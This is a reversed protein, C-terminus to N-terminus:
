KVVRLVPRAHTVIVRANLITSYVQAQLHVVQQRDEDSLRKHGYGDITGLTADAFVKAMGAIHSKWEEPSSKVEKEAGSVAAPKTDASRPSSFRREILVSGDPQRLIDDHTWGGDIERSAGRRFRLRNLTKQEILGASLLATPTGHYAVRRKWNGESAYDLVQVGFAGEYWSMQLPVCDRWCLTISGDKELTMAVFRLPGHHVNSDNRFRFKPTFFDTARMQAESGAWWVLVEGDAEYEHRILVGARRGVEDRNLLYAPLPRANLVNSSPSDM